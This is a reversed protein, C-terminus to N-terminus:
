DESDESFKSELDRYFPVDLIQELDPFTVKEGLGETTGQARLYRFAELTARTAAFLGTLPFVAIKFGIEELEKASLVPTRGGEIMNAFIPVDPFASAIAKLEAVSQPAEIFVVDAGAEFYARGRALAADLGEVARADTRGIIVLGSNQTAEVAARIKEVHAATSIVKKGSFHGCKKPWEQDELIIGGADARVVDSVTRYVNLPNGYGTDIDAVVPIDVAGVINAVSMLTETATLLGFDPRGLTAASIGFGSTFAVEFGAKEALKAGLCDYVGTLVQIGPRALIERLQNGKTM